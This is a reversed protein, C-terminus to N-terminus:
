QNNGAFLDLLSVDVWSPLVRLLHSACLPPVVERAKFFFIQFHPRLIAGFIAKQIAQTTLHVELGRRSDGPLRVIARVIAKESRASRKRFGLYHRAVVHRGSINVLIKETRDEKPRDLSSLLLLKERGQERRKMSPKSACSTM